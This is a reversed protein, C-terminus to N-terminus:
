PWLFPMPWLGTYGLIHLTTIAVLLAASSALLVVDTRRYRLQRLWTRRGTGFGRLDMADITDEANVIANITLPVLLPGTRRLKAVPNRKGKDWEFGRVRQADRTNELDAALSPIFHMTLDVAFAFKDPVGLRRVAPGLDSPAIAFAMPFGVLTMTAFRFLQTLAFSLVEASIPTGFLPLDFLVHRPGELDSVAAGTILVNVVVLLLIFVFAFLWNARVQKWPIGASAYYCAALVFFVLMIRLDWVQVVTAITLIAVLLLTRPDRKALWSGQGLYRPAVNM